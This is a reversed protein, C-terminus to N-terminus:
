ERQVSVEQKSNGNFSKWIAYFLCIVGALSILGTFINIYSIVGAAKVASFGGQILKNAIAQKPVDFLTSVLMLSSGIILLRKLKSGGKKMLISALVLAVIWIALGPAANILGGIILHPEM